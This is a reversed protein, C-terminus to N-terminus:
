GSDPILARLIAGHEVLPGRGIVLLAGESAFASTDDNMM